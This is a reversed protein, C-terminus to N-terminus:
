YLNWTFTAGDAFDYYRPGWTTTGGASRAFLKHVGSPQWGTSKGYASVDGCYQDDIYVEVNYGTFNDVVLYTAKKAGKSKVNPNPMSTKDDKFGREGPRPVEGKAKVGQVKDSKARLPKQASQQGAIAFVAVAAVAITTLLIKIKM